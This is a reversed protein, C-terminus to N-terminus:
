ERPRLRALPAPLEGTHVVGLRRTARTLAVYLDGPGRPSDALIREPEVVLVSDFELGKAAPVELVAVTSELRVDPGTEAGPVASAVARGLRALRATPVIVGLRGEGVAAAEEAVLAALVAPLEGPPVRLRWPRTGTSRVPRPAEFVAGHAASVEAAIEAIEAPTRYNVELRELRWRNGLWPALAEEWSAAGAAAGTQDIDGVLTMSRSPCRRALLRWDMASLEQAEDVVIHGFAWTRDAAAREAPTRGDAEDQREALREADLLDHVTLIEAEEGEELDTSRSGHAIDLAEQALATRMRREAEAEARSARDDEGLLEAAEDLLPVDSPTWRSGPARLLLAREAPTLGPAASALRGPSAYLEALLRPPTLRPWLADVAARVGPDARLERRIDEVGDAGLLGGSAEALPEGFPNERAELEELLRTVEPPVGNLVDQEVLEAARRALADLVLRVFVPRARNHPLGTARARDRAAALDGPGLRVPRGDWDAELGDEPIRQRDRVAAAVVEAMVARGKVEATGPPETGDATIGPYLEGVTAPLVSTEGLSPLVEGVYRLFVPSPGVVLVVSRALRERHTYLLYAARHLAVATKGTGPGGQVVLVGAHPARIVRDQEAQITRVIDGMRGTRDADLAALLAAEGTLGTPEASGPAGAGGAADPGLLEDQLGTVRRGGSRIHRRRRVGEPSFGTATYFPRAAPARWDVLLPELDADATKGAAGDLIGIRGIYRRVGDCMDLRGFCLGHEAANLRGLLEQSRAAAAERELLAQQGRGVQALAQAFREEEQARLEDLRRYLLSLRRQEM